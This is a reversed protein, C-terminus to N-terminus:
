SGSSRPPIPHSRAPKPRRCGRAPPLPGSPRQARARSFSRRISFSTEPNEPEHGAIGAHHFAFLVAEFFGASRGLPRFALFEANSYVLVARISDPSNETHESISYASEGFRYTNLFQITLFDQPSFGQLDPFIDDRDDYRRLM